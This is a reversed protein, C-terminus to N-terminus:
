LQMTSNYKILFRPVCAQRKWNPFGKSREFNTGTLILDQEGINEKDKKEGALRNIESFDFRCDRMDSGGGVTCDFREHSIKGCSVACLVRGTDRRYSHFNIGFAAYKV